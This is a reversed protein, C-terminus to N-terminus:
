WEQWPAEGTLILGKGDFKAYFYGKPYDGLMKQLHKLEKKSRMPLEQMVSRDENYVLVGADGTSVIPLQVKVIIKKTSTAM